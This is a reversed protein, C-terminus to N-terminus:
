RPTPAAKPTPRPTSGPKPAAPTTKEPGAVPAHRREERRETSGDAIQTLAFIVQKRVDASVDKLAATLAAVAAENGVQSLAFAAQQRVDEEVDKLAAVLAPVAQEDGLQSLAFAAQERVEANADKLADTIAPVATRDRIQSLAFLAQQRVDENIDKLAAALAPVAPASRLQGLAFAAQERVSPEKDKLMGLLADAARQDRLQGLGVVAQERMDADSDKLAAMLAEYVAPSHLRVLAQMAQKRVDADTDHLAETLGQLVAPSVTRAPRDEDVHAPQPAQEENVGGRVGGAVGGAVGGVIGNGQGVGVGGGAGIGVGRGTGRGVGEESGSDAKRAVAAAGTQAPLTTNVAPQQQARSRPAVTDEAATSALLSPGVMARARAVPHLTAVPLALVFMTLAARWAGRRTTGRRDRAADLIALLRGELESPRAMALAASALRPATVSRAIDLLHQAYDSGRTGAALVLDDCAREREARLHRAAMWVLPNFWYVACVVHSLAQVLCDRRLVHALEHLLVVRARDESWHAAAAPMVLAPRLVGSTFPVTVQASQVLRPAKILGLEAVAVDLADQWEPDDLPTADRTIRHVAAVSAAYRGLLAAAITVWILGVWDATSRGESLAGPTPTTQSPASAARQAGAIPPAPAPTPAVVQRLPVAPLPASGVAVEPTTPAPLIPVRWGPLAGGLVPLAIAALLATAWITHRLAASRRGALRAAAWALALVVSVRWAADVMMVLSGTTWTM